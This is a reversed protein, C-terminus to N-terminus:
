SEKIYKVITDIEDKGIKITGLDMKGIKPLTVPIKEAGMNPVFADYASDIDFSGTDAKYVGFAAIMPNSACYNALINPLNKALLTSGGLIVAKELGSYAVAVDNDIFKTFGRQIQNITVM